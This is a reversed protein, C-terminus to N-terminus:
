PWFKWWPRRRKERAARAQDDLVREAAHTDVALQRRGECVALQAGRTAYGVELDANTPAPPLVYLGCARKAEAPM